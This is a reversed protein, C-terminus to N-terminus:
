ISIYLISQPLYTRLRGIRRQEVYTALRQWDLLLRCDRDADVVNGTYLM